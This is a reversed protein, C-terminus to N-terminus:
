RCGKHTAGKSRVGRILLGMQYGALGGVGVESVQGGGGGLKGGWVGGVDVDENEGADDADEEDAVDEEEALPQVVVAGGAAARAGSGGRSARALLDGVRRQRLLREKRPLRGPHLTHQQPRQPGLPHERPAPRHELEQQRKRDDHKVNDSAGYTRSRARKWTALEHQSSEKIGCVITNVVGFSM